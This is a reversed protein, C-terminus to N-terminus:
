FLASVRVADLADPLQYNFKFFEVDGRTVAKRISDPVLTGTCASPVVQLQLGIRAVRSIPAAVIVCYDLHKSLWGPLWQVLVHPELSRMSVLQLGCFEKLNGAYESRSWM